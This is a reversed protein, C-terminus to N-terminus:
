VLAGPPHKGPIPESADMEGARRWRPTPQPLGRSPVERRSPLPTAWLHHALYGARRYLWSDPHALLQVNEGPMLKYAVPQGLRNHRNPNVIKWYRGRLPDVTQKAEQETKLLTSRARFANGHPNDPGLPLPEAHVEYLPTARGM